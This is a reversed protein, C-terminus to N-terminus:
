SPLGSSATAWCASTARWRSTSGSWAKWALWAIGTAPPTAPERRTEAAVLAVAVRAGHAALRRAAVFGDGGNNGPGCLVLFPGSGWRRVPGGPGPAAAVATGAHETLPHRPIGVSCRQVRRRGDDVAAGDDPFPSDGRGAPPWRRWTSTRLAAPDDSPPPRGAGLIASLTLAYSPVDPTTEAPGFPLFADPPGEGRRVVLPGRVVPRSGAKIHPSSAWSRRKSPRRSPQHLSAPGLAQVQLEILHTLTPRRVRWPDTRPGSRRGLRLGSGTNVSLPPGCPSLASRRSWQTAAFTARATDPWPWTDPAFLGAPRQPGAVVEANQPSPRPLFRGSGTFTSQM